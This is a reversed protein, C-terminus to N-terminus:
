QVDDEFPIADEFTDAGDAVFAARRQLFLSRTLAYSDESNYLVDDILEGNRARTDIIDVFTRSLGAFPQGFYTTPAFAIDVIAGFGTRPTTPGLLPLEFYAGQPAGWVALTKGFDSDEKFLEVDSAPDLVGGFGFTSNVGARVLTRGASRFEGTLLHNVFDRPLELHNIINRFVFQLADPTVASYGQSLPRLALRDAGKNFDHFDRNISEYPDNIGLAENEPSNTACGALGVALAAAVVVSGLGRRRGRAQRAGTQGAGFSSSTAAM